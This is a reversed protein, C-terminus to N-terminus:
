RPDLFELTVDRAANIAYTIVVGAPPNQGAGAAGRGFGARRTRVAERPAFLHAAATTMAAGITHLPTIDDLVWFSRGQTAAVLDDDKIALDTIPVAPLNLQLSQWRAGGDLSYYVGTETGAFLLDKRTPDERVTRVFSREPIG